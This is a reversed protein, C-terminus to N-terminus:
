RSYQMSKEESLENMLIAKLFLRSIKFRDLIKKALSRNRENDLKPNHHAKSLALYVDRMTAEANEIVNALNTFVSIQYEINEQSEPFSFAFFHNLLRIARYSNKTDSLDEKLDAIHANLLFIATKRTECLNSQTLDHHFNRNDDLARRIDDTRYFIHSYKEKLKNIITNITQQYLNNHIEYEKKANSLQMKFRSQIIKKMPSATSSERMKAHLTMTQEHLQRRKQQLEVLSEENLRKILEKDYQKKAELTFGTLWIYCSEKSLHCYIQAESLSNSPTLNTFANVRIHQYLPFSHLEKAFETLYSTNNYIAGMNCGLLDIIKITAPLEFAILDAVLMKPALDQDGFIGFNGHGILTLRNDRTSAIHKAEETCYIIAEENYKKALNITVSLLPFDNPSMCIIM